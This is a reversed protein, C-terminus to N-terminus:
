WYYRRASEEVLWSIKLENATAKDIPVVFKEDKIQVKVIFQKNLYISHNPIQNYINSSYDSINQLSTFPTQQKSTQPENTEILRAFGADLLSSQTPNKKLSKSSSNRRIKMKGKSGDSAKMVVDFAELAKTDYDSLLEVIDSKDGDDSDFLNSISKTAFNSKHPSEIIRENEHLSVSNENFFKQKKKIPGLDDELWEDPDVENNTMFGSRKRGDPSQPVNINFIKVDKRPNKLKEMASKYEIRANKKILKEKVTSREDSEYEDCDDNNLSYRMSVRVNQQTKPEASCYGSSNFSACPSSTQQQQQQQKNTDIGLRQCQQALRSKLNEYSEEESATLKEGYDYRWKELAELPTQDSDTKITAKAGRDLLLEVVSLHGNSAADFLPTIGDCNVGGKDNIASQAGNDLLLEVLDKHGHNAAEHLPLWGANDRVNIAHGQDILMKAMQYNGNICAEHLRTEGKANKKVTLGRKRRKTASENNRSITRHKEDESSDANSSLEHQLIDIADSNLIDESSEVEREIDDCQDLDINNENAEKEYMEALNMMNHEKCLSILKKAVIKEVSQENAKKAEGMAKKYAENTEWFDAKALHLLNGISLLTSCAEKPDDKILEYEMELYKRAQEYNKDDIYTQYLSVYIPILHEGTDGNLQAAELMKLYFDLAKKYNKLKCAEDGLKEYLNKRTAYDFSDATILEDEYKCLSHVIALKKSIAQMDQENSTKLKFAKKLVQKASQFDCNKILLDSKALLSECMKNNKDGIRKAIDLANNFSNMAAQFNEKKYAFCLGLAMLCQHNLEFLDNSACLKIATDYYNIAEDYHKMHEKTVGLNLYLRAQMDAQETKSVSKGISLICTSLHIFKQTLLHM